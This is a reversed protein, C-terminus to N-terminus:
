HVQSSMIIGSLFGCALLMCCGECLPIGAIAGGPQVTHSWFSMRGLNWTPGWFHMYVLAPRQPSQLLKRIVVELSRRCRDGWACPGERVQVSESCVAM